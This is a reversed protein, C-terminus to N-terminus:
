PYELIKKAISRERRPVLEFGFGEYFRVAWTADEWTGVLIQSRALDLLLKLLAGGIGCRQYDTRVCCHKCQITFLSSVSEM